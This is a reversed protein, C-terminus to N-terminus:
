LQYNFLQYFIHNAYTFLNDFGPTIYMPTDLPPKPPPSLGGTRINAGWSNNTKNKSMEDLLRIKM